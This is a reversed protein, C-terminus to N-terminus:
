SGPNTTDLDPNYFTSQCAGKYTVVENIAITTGPSNVTGTWTRIISCNNINVKRTVPLLTTGSVIMDLTFEGPSYMAEIVTVTNGVRKVRSVFTSFGENSVRPCDVANFNINKVLNTVNFDVGPDTGLQFTETQDIQCFVPGDKERDSVACAIFFLPVVILLRKLM